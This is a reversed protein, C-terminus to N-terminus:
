RWRKFTQQCKCQLVGIFGLVFSVVTFASLSWRIMLVCPSSPYRVTLSMWGNLGEMARRQIDDREWSERCAGFQKLSGWEEGTVTLWLLIRHSVYLLLYIERCYLLCNCYFLLRQSTPFQFLVANDMQGVRIDSHKNAELHNWLVAYKLFCEILILGLDSSLM